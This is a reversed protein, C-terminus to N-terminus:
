PRARAAAQLQDLGQPAGVCILTDGSSLRTAPDPNFIREQAATVIGVVIVNFERRIPSDRLTAGELSSGAEIATETIRVSDDAGKPAPGVGMGMLHAVGPTLIRRAMHVAGIEYPSVVGSAGARLLKGEARRDRALAIISVESRLEKANLITYVNDADSPLTCMVARAHAIGARQLTEEETADGVTGLLGAAEAASIAEEDKDVVVIPVGQRAVEDAALQGFRGYGCLVIHDRMAEILREMRRRGLVDRVRGAVLAAALSSITVSVIAVGVVIYVISFIRGADTEVLNTYGVTSVTIVAMYLAGVFDVDEGVLWYGLTGFTLLAGVALVMTHPRRASLWDLVREQWSVQESRPKQWPMRVM